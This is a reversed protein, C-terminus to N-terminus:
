LVQALTFETALVTSGDRFTVSDWEQPPDGAAVDARCYTHCAIMGSAGLFMGAHGIPRGQPAYFILDGEKLKSLAAAAKAHNLGAGIVNLYGGNLHDFLRQAGFIGYSVAPFDSPIYLGGGATGGPPTGLCSSVFHSCDEMELFSITTGDSEVAVEPASAGSAHRQFVTEKDVTRYFPQAKIGICSDPCVRNWYKRAFAVANARNYPSRAINISFELPLPNVSGSLSRAKGAARPNLPTGKASKLLAKSDKGV